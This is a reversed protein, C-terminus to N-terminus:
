CGERFRLCPYEVPIRLENEVIVVGVKVQVVVVLSVVIVQDEKGGLPLFTSGLGRPRDLGRERQPHRAGRRQLDWDPLPLHHRPPLDPHSLIQAAPPLLVLLHHHVHLHASLLRALM